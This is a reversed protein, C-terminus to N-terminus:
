SSRRALITGMIVVDRAKIKNAAMRGRAACVVDWVVEFVGETVLFVATLL